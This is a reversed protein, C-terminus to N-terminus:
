DNDRGLRALRARELRQREDESLSGIGSRSIKALIEDIDDDTETAVPAPPISPRVRRTTPRRVVRAVRRPATIRNAAVAFGMDVLPGAAAGAVLAIIWAMAGGGAQVLGVAIVILGAFLVMRRMSVEMGFINLAEYQQWQWAAASWAAIAGLPAVLEYSALAPSIRAFAFFAVGALLNGGIYGAIMRAPGSNQEVRAALSWIALLIVLMQVPGKAALPHLLIAIPEVHHRAALQELAVASTNPSEALIFWTPDVGRGLVLYTFIVWGTFQFGLLLLTARPPILSRIQASEERYEAGQSYSRDEWGM